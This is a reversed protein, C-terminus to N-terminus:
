KKKHARVFAISHEIHDRFRIAAAVSADTEVGAFMQILGRAALRPDKRQAKIM